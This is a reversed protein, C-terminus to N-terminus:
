GKFRLMEPVTQLFILIDLFFGAHKIYYLDYELKTCADEISNGYRFRVQAWGTIGPRMAHRARYLPLCHILSGVFQPREPRPGIVSMEGRLINICQPLEDLRIRRLWRGVPTVRPDNAEAWTAGNKQEANPDMTRFKILAFPRGGQGVRHQLYFLPGPSTFKNALMLLPTLLGVIVLAILAIVLDFLRKTTRYLRQNPSDASSGEGGAVLSLDQAVFEVPVRATLREYATSLPTVRLGLEWCDLVAEQLDPALSHIDAVIIENIALHRAEHLLTEATLVPVNRLIPRAPSTGNKVLGVIEYGTGRFPNARDEFAALYLQQILAQNKTEGDVLLVRHRFAPQFFLYAYFVRWGVVAVISILIFGFTQLRRGLPPTLWPIAVYILGTLLVALGAYLISQTVSAARTPNYIDLASGLILWVITLTLFWKFNIVLTMVTRPIDGWIFLATILASNLLLLDSSLLILRREALTLGVGLHRLRRQFQLVPPISWGPPVVIDTTNITDINM